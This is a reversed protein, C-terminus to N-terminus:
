HNMSMTSQITVKFVGHDTEKSVHDSGFVKNATVYFAISNPSTVFRDPDISIKISSDPGASCTNVIANMITALGVNEIRRIINSSYFMDFNDIYRHVTRCEVPETITIEDTKKCKIVYSRGDSNHNLLISPGLRFITFGTKEQFGFDVFRKIILSTIYKEGIVENKCEETDDIVRITYVKDAISIRMRDTGTFEYKINYVNCNLITELFMLLDNM